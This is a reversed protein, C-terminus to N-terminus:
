FQREIEILTKIRTRYSYSYLDVSECYIKGLTTCFILQNVIKSLKINFDINKFHRRLIETLIPQSPERYLIINVKCKIM